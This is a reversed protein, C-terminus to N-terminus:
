CQRVMLLSQSVQDFASIPALFIVASASCLYADIVVFVALHVNSHFMILAYIPGVGSGTSRVCVFGPLCMLAFFHLRRLTNVFPTINVTTSTLCGPM